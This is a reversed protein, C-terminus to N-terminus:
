LRGRRALMVIVIILLVIVVLAIPGVSVAFPM